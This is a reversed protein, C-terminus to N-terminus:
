EFDGVIRNMLIDRLESLGSNPFVVDRWEAKGAVLGAVLEVLFFIFCLVTAILLKKRNHEVDEASGDADPCASIDSPSAARLGKRRRSTDTSPSSTDSQEMSAASDVDDHVVVQNLDSVSAPAHSKHFPNAAELASM